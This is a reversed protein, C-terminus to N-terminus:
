YWQSPIIADKREVVPSRDFCESIFNTIGCRQALFHLHTVWRNHDRHAGVSVMQWPARVTNQIEQESTYNRIATSFYQENLYAQSVLYNLDSELLATDKSVTRSVKAM